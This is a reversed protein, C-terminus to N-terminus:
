GARDLQSAYIASSRLEGPQRFVISEAKLDELWVENFAKRVARRLDVASKHEKPDHWARVGIM